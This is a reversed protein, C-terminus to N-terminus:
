SEKGDSGCKRLRWQWQEWVRKEDITKQRTKKEDRKREETRVVSEM